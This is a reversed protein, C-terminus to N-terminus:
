GDRDGKTPVMAGAVAELCRATEARTLRRRGSWTVETRGSDFTVAVQTTTEPDLGLVGCLAVQRVRVLERDEPTMDPM